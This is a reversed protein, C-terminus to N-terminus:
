KTRVPGTLFEPKADASGSKAIHIPGKITLTVNGGGPLDAEPARRPAMPAPLAPRPAEAQPVAREPATLRKPVIPAVYPAPALTERPVEALRPANRPVDRNAAMPDAPGIYRVRVKATGKRKFGLAEAGAKSLDIIRGGTFPGRDNLRVTVARGNDLNTVRVLSNLPLTTHAATLAHQDFKEGNATPKGHFKPGYWSATGTRDYDPDHRPTFTQGMITYRKGVKQHDYLNRDMRDPDFVPGQGGLPDTFRPTAARPGRNEYSLSAYQANGQGIKYTIPAVSKTTTMQTSACGTAM